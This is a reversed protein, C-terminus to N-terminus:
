DRGIVFGNNNETTTVNHRYSNGRSEEYEIMGSLLRSADRRYILAKTNDVSELYYSLSKNILYDPNPCMSIDTTTALSAPRSWYNYAISVGSSINNTNLVLSYGDSYNGLEYFYRDSTSYLIKEVPLIQFYNFGSINVYGDVKRYDTPMSVTSNGVFSTSAEKYLVGWKYAEAWESQAWNLCELRRNWELGGTTPVVVQKDLVLALRTQLENVTKM